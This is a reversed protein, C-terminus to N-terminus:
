PKSRLEKLIEKLTQKIEGLEAASNEQKNKIVAIDTEHAIIKGFAFGVATVLLPFSITIIWVSLKKWDGVAVAVEQRTM